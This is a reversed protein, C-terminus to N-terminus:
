MAEVQASHKRVPEPLVPPAPTEGLETRLRDRCRHLAVEVANTTMGLLEGIASTKLDAGYRLAVLERDRPCLTEIAAAVSLRVVTTTALDEPAAEERLPLSTRQMRCHDDVCTRAIGIAWSVPEGKRSDFSARYRLAREITASTVDEADHGHGIRYAVYAYVRRILVEPHALPDRSHM